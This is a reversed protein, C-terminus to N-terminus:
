LVAAENQVSQNEKACVCVCLWVHRNFFYFVRHWKSIMLIFINLKNKKKCMLGNISRNVTASFFCCINWAKSVSYRDVIKLVWNSIVYNMEFSFRKYTNSSVFFIFLSLSLPFPYILISMINHLTLYHFLFMVIFTYKIM